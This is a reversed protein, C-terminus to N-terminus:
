LPIFDRGTKRWQRASLDRLYIPTVYYDFWQQEFTPPVIHRYYYPRVRGYEDYTYRPYTPRVYGYPPYVYKNEM